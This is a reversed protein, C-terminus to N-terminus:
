DPPLYEEFTLIHGCSLQKTQKKYFSIMNGRHVAAGAFILFGLLSLALLASSFPRWFVAVLSLTLFALMHWVARKASVAYEKIYIAAMIRTSHEKQLNDANPNTCQVTQMCNGYGQKKLRKRIEKQGKASACLDFIEQSFSLSHAPYARHVLYERLITDFFDPSKILIMADKKTLLLGMDGRQVTNPFAVFVIELFCYLSFSDTSTIPTLYGADLFTPLLHFDNNDM